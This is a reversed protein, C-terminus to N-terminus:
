LPVAQVITMGLLLALALLVLRSARSTAVDGDWWVLGCAVAALASMVMLVETPLSGLAQASAVIVFALLWKGATLARSEGPARPMRRRHYRAWRGACSASRRGRM